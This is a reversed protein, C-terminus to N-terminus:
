RVRIENDKTYITICNSKDKIMCGVIYYYGSHEAQRYQNTGRNAGKDIYVVGWIPGIDLWKKVYKNYRVINKNIDKCYIQGTKETCVNKSYWDEASYSTVAFNLVCLFIIVRM